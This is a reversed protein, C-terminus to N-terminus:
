NSNVRTIDCTADSYGGASATVTTKGTSNDLKLSIASSSSTGNLITASTSSQNSFTGQGAPVSLTVSLSGSTGPRSAQVNVATNKKGTSPCLLALTPIAQTRGEVSLPASQWAGLNSIITYTYSSDPELASDECAVNLVVGQCVVTAGRYITFGSPTAGSSVATVSISTTTASTGTASGVTPVALLQAKAVGFGSGLASWFAFATNGALAVAIATSALLYVLRKM